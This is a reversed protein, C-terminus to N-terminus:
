PLTYALLYSPHSLLFHLTLRHRMGKKPSCISPHLGLLYSPHSLLFHLTLRHRIGQKPSCISPHLGLLYSPHSLLFHLTLRHRIGQKPSCITKGETSDQVRSCARARHLASPIPFFTFLARAAQSQAERFRFARNCTEAEQIRSQLRSYFPIRSQPGQIVKRM